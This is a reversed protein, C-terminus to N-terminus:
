EEKPPKSPKRGAKAMRSLQEKYVDHSALRGGKVLYGKPYKIHSRVVTFTVLSITKHREAGCKPCQSVRDFEVGTEAMVDRLWGDGFPHRETRCWLSEDTVETADPKPVIVKKM